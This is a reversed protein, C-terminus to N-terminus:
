EYGQRQDRDDLYLLFIRIKEEESLSKFWDVMDSPVSHEKLSDIYAKRQAEGAKVLKEHITEEIGKEEAM